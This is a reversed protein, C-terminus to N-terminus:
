FGKFSKGGNLLFTVKYRKDTCANIMLRELKRQRQSKKLKNQSKTIQFYQYSMNNTVTCVVRSNKNQDFWLILINLLIETTM